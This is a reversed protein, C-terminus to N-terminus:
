TNDGIEIDSSVRPISRWKDDNSRVEVRNVDIMTINNLTYWRKGTELSTTSTGINNKSIQSIEDLGDDLLNMLYKHSKRGYTHELTGVIQKIKM